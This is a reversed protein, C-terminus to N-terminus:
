QLRAEGSDLVRTALSDTQGTGPRRQISLSVKLKHAMVKTAALSQGLATAIEASPYKGAMSRLKAVDEDTWPRHEGM